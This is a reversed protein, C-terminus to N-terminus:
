VWISDAKQKDLVTGSEDRQIMRSNKLVALEACDPKNKNTWKALDLMFTPASQKTQFVVFGKSSFRAEGRVGKTGLKKAEDRLSKKDATLILNSNDFWFYLKEGKRLSQLPEVLKAVSENTKKARSEAQSKSIRYIASLSGQENQIIRVKALEAFFESDQSYLTALNEFIAKASDYSILTLLEEAEKTIAGSYSKADSDLLKRIHLLHKQLRQLSDSKQNPYLYFYPAGAPGRNTLWFWYDKDLKLKRLRYLSEQVTYPAMHDPIDTWLSADQHQSLLSGTASVQNLVCNKLCALATHEEINTRVWEALGELHSRNLAPALFQLRGDGNLSVMGMLFPDTTLERQETSLLRSTPDDKLFSLLLRPKHLPASPCYSFWARQGASMKSLRKATDEITLM